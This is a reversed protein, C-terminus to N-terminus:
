ENRVYTKSAIFSGTHRVNAIVVLKSLSDKKKPNKKDNPELYNKTIKETEENVWPYSPIYLLCQHHGMWVGNEKALAGTWWISHTSVKCLIGRLWVSAAKELLNYEGGPSKYDIASQCTPFSPRGREWPPVLGTTCNTSQFETHFWGVNYSLYM